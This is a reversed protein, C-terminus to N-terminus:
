HCGSRAALRYRTEAVLAADGGNWGGISDQWWGYAEYLCDRTSFHIVDGWFTDAPPYALCCQGVDGDVYGFDQAPLMDGYYSLAYGQAAASANLAAALGDLVPALRGVTGAEGAAVVRPRYSGVLPAAAPAGGRPSRLLFGQQSGLQSAQIYRAAAQGDSPANVRLILQLADPLSTQWDGGDWFRVGDAGGLPDLNIAAPPVGAAVLAAVVADATDKSHDCRPSVAVCM